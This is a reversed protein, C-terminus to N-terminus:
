MSLCPITQNYLLETKLNKLFWWVTGKHLEGYIIKLDKSHSHLTSFDAYPICFGELINTPFCRIFCSKPLLKWCTNNKLWETMDLEAVGHVVARYAERDKVMEQLKSLEHRNLQHHWGVMEAETVGKEEQRWDKGTDPDKGTLWSKADPPWLIPADAEADTRGIFIWPQNRKPNLPKCDLSSELTKDLVVTWFCWNKM